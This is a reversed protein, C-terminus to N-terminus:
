KTENLRPFGAPYNPYTNNNRICLHPVLFRSLNSSLPKSLDGAVTARPSLARARSGDEGSGGALKWMFCLYGEGDTCCLRKLGTSFVQLVHIITPFEQEKGAVLYNEQRM